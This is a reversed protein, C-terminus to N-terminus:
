VYNVNRTSPNKAFREASSVHSLFWQKKVGENIYSSHM